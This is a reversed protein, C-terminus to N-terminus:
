GTGKKIQDENLQKRLSDVEKRLQDLDGELYQIYRKMREPTEMNTANNPKNEIRNDVKKTNDERYFEYEILKQKSEPINNEGSEYKQITRATVGILLGFKEQSLNHTKRLDRVTEGNIEKRM